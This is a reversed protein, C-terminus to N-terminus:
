CVLFFAGGYTRRLDPSLSSDPRNGSNDRFGTETPSSLLIRFLEAIQQFHTPFTPDSAVIGQISFDHMM